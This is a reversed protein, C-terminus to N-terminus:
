SFFLNPKLPFCINTFTPSEQFLQSGPCTRSYRIYGVSDTETSLNSKPYPGLIKLIVSHSILWYLINFLGTNAKLSVIKIMAYAKLFSKLERWWIGRLPAVPGKVIKFCCVLEEPDIIWGHNQSCAKRGMVELTATCIYLSCPSFLGNLCCTSNQLFM